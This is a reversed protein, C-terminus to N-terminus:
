GALREVTSRRAFNEIVGLIPPSAEGPASDLTTSVRGSRQVRIVGDVESTAKEVNARSGLDVVVLDYRSRLRNVLAERLRGAVRSTESRVAPLLVIRDALSEIACDAMTEISECRNWGFDTKVRLIGALAATKTDGDILLVRCGLRSCCFALAVAITSAGVKATEGEIGIVPTEGTAHAHKVLRRALRSLGSEALRVVEGPRRFGDVQYSPRWRHPDFTEAEESREEIAATDKAEAQLDEIAEADDEHLEDEADNTEGADDGRRPSEAGHDVSSALIDKADTESNCCVADTQPEVAPDDEGHATSKDIPRCSGDAPEQVDTVQPRSIPAGDIEPETGANEKSVIANEKSAGTMSGAVSMSTAFLEECRAAPAVVFESVATNPADETLERPVDASPQSESCSIEDEQSLRIRLPVDAKATEDRDSAAAPFGGAPTKVDSTEGADAEADLELLLEDLAITGRAAAESVGSRQRHMYAKIFAQDLPTM